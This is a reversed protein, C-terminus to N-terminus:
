VSFITYAVCETFGCCPCTCKMIRLRPTEYDYLISETSYESREAEFECGCADCAFKVPYDKAPEKLIKM